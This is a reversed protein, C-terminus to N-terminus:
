RERRKRGMGIKRGRPQKGKIWKASYIICLSTLVDNIHFLRSLVRLTQINLHLIKHWSLLISNVWEVSNLKAYKCDLLFFQLCYIPNAIWDCVKFWYICSFLAPLFTARSCAYSKCPKKLYSSPIWTRWM